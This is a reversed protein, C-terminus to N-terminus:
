EVKAQDRNFANVAKEQRRRFDMSMGTPDISSMHKAYEARIAKGGDNAANNFAEELAMEDEETLPAYQRERRALQVDTLGGARNSKRARTRAKAKERNINKIAKAARAKTFVGKKARRRYKSNIKQREKSDLKRAGSTKTNILRSLRRRKTADSGEKTLGAVKYAERWGQLTRIEKLRERALDRTM